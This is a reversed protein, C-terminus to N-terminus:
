TGIDRMHVATTVAALPSLGIVSPHSTRLAKVASGQEGREEADTTGPAEAVVPQRPGERRLPACQGPQCVAQSSLAHCLVIAAVRRQHERFM